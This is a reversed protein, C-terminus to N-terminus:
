TKGLMGQARLGELTALLSKSRRFTVPVAEVHRYLMRGDQGVIFNARGQGALIGFTKVGYARAAARGPDSLLTFELRYRERFERHKELPDASIGVVRIGLGRFQEIEHQYSCLQTTCVPTFDGPYFVLMVPGDRRLEALTVWRGDQDQLRFEPALDFSPARASTM